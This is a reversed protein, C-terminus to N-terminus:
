WGSVNSQKKKLAPKGGRLWNIMSKATTTRTDLVRSRAVEGEDADKSLEARESVKLIIPPAITDATPPAFRM